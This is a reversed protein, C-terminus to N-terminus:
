LACEITSHDEANRAAYEIEAEDGPRMIQKKFTEHDLTEGAFSTRHYWMPNGCERCRSVSWGGPDSTEWCFAQAADCTPCGTFIM